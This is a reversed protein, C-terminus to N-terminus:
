KKNSKEDMVDIDNDDEPYVFTELQNASFNNTGSQKNLDSSKSKSLMRYCIVATIIGIINVISEGLGNLPKGLIGGGRDAELFPFPLFSLVFAAIFSAVFAFFLSVLLKKIM